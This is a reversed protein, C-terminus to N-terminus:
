RFDNRVNGYTVGDTGCIQGTPDEENCITDCHLPYQAAESLQSYLSAILVGVSICRFFSNIEMWM